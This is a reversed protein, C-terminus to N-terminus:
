LSIEILGLPLCFPKKPPFDMMTDTKVVKYVALVILFGAHWPASHQIEEYKWTGEKQPVATSEQQTQVAAAPTALLPKTNPSHGHLM